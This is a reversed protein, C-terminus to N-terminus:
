DLSGFEKVHLSMIIELLNELQDFFLEIAFYNKKIKQNKYARIKRAKIDEKLESFLELSRKTELERIKNIMEKTEKLLKVDIESNKSNKKYHYLSDGLNELLVIKQYVLFIKVKSASYSDIM